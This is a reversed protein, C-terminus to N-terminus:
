TEAKKWNLWGRLNTIFFTSSGIILAISDTLFGIAAYCINSFMFALFGKKNKNGILYIALFSSVIALWDVCFYKFIQM